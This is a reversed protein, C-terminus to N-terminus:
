RTKKRLTDIVQERARDRAHRERYPQAEAQARALVIGLRTLQEKKWIEHRDRAIMDAVDTTTEPGPERLAADRRQLETVIAQRTALAQASRLARLEALKRLEALRARKM